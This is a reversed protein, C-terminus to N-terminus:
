KVGAGSFTNLLLSPAYRIPSSLLMAHKLRGYLVLRICNSSSKLVEDGRRANKM